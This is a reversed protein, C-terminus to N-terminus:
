TRWSGSLVCMNLDEMLRFVFVCINLDGILRFVFVFGCMNLDEMLGFFLCVCM